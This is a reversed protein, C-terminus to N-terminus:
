NGRHTEVIVVSVNKFVKTEHFAIKKCISVVALCTLAFTAQFQCLVSVISLRVTCVLFEEVRFKQGALITCFMTM